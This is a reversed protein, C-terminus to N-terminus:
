APCKESGKFTLATIAADSRFCYQDRLREPILLSICIDDAGASGIEGYAGLLYTTITLNTRDNAIKGAIIDYDKMREVVAPFTDSKRHGVVCHLWDRDAHEFLFQTIGKDEHFVFTSIYGYGPDERLTGQTLAKRVSTHVFDRAQEHSTTLYFGKGFDKHAACRRLDPESVICYSGHFLVTGDTLRLM